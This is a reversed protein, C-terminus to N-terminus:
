RLPLPPCRPCTAIVRTSTSSMSCTRGIAGRKSLPAITTSVRGTRCQAAAPGKKRRSDASMRGLTNTGRFHEIRIELEPGPHGTVAPRDSEGFRQSTRSGTEDGGSSIYRAPNWPVGVSSSPVASSMRM